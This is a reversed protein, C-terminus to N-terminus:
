RRLAAYGPAKAMGYTSGDDLPDSSGEPEDPEEDLARAPPAMAAPLTEALALDAELEGVKVRHVGQERLRPAVEVLLELWERADQATM